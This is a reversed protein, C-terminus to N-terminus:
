IRSSFQKRSTEVTFSSDLFLFYLNPPTNSQSTFRAVARNGLDPVSSDHKIVGMHLKCTIEFCPHLFAASCGRKKQPPQWFCAPVQSCPNPEWIAYSNMGFTNSSTSTLAWHLDVGNLYVTHTSQSHLVRTATKLPTLWPKLTNPPMTTSFSPYFHVWIKKTLKM